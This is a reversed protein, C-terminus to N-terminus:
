EEFLRGSSESMSVKNLACIEELTAGSRALAYFSTESLLVYEWTRNMRNEEDLQNIKKCWEVTALKKRQVNKDLVKDDGKTEIIYVKNDTCVMFDPHYSALLGDERIYFLSAFRHQNENIKLFREVSADRDLFESFAKEFGGKNSPYGMREYIVKELEMSYSERIRLTAVASFWLKEVVAESTMVSEQMRHIALSMEKIIHQTVIANKSLLIKWDNGEFPNFVTGFLRTRIYIDMIRIIERQNIQLTPLERTARAGVRDMRTTITRLLKMLYENYSTATFLDAKVQYRGFTTETIVAQSVFTEGGTALYTRLHDLSFATKLFAFKLSTKQERDM